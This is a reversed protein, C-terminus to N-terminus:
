EDLFDEFHQWVSKKDPKSPDGNFALDAAESYLLSVTGEAIVEGNEGDRNSYMKVNLSYKQGIKFKDKNMYLLQIFAYDQVWSSHYQNYTRLGRPSHQRYKFDNAEIRPVMKGWAASRGRCEVRSTSQGDMEYVININQGAYKVSPPVKFFAMYNMNGAMDLVTTFGKGNVMPPDGVYGRKMLHWDESAFVIKDVNKAYLENKMWKATEKEAAAANIKAMNQDYLVQATEVDYDLFNASDKAAVTLVKNEEAFAYVSPAIEMFVFNNHNNALAPVDKDTIYFYNIDFKTKYKEKLTCTISNPRDGYGTGGLNVFLKNVIEGEKEKTFQFGITGQRDIIDEVTFYTGSIGTADSYDYQKYKKKGKAANAMKANAKDMKAQMKEKLTQANISTTGIILGLALLLNVKKM